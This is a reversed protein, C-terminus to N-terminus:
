QGLHCCWSWGGNWWELWCSLSLAFCLSDRWKPFVELFSCVDRWDFGLWTVNLQLSHHLIFGNWADQYGTVILIEIELSSFYSLFLLSLATEKMPVCIDIKCNWAKQFRFFVPIVLPPSLHSPHHADHWHCPWCDPIQKIAISGIRPDLKFTFSYM